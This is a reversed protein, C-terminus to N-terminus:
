FKRMQKIKKHHINLFIIINYVFFCTVRCKKTFFAKKITYVKNWYFFQGKKYRM